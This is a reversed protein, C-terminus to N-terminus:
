DLGHQSRIDALLGPVTQKKPGVPTCSGKPTGGTLRSNQHTLAQPCLDTQAHVFTRAPIYLCACTFVCMFFCACVCYVRAHMCYVLAMCVCTYVCVLTYAHVCACVFMNMHIYMRTHACLVCSHM